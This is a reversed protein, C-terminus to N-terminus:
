YRGIFLELNCLDGLFGEPLPLARAFNILSCGLFCFQIKKRRAMKLAEKHPQFISM